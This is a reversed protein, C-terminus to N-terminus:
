LQQDAAVVRRELFQIGHQRPGILVLRLERGVGLRRTRFLATSCVNQPVQARLTEFRLVMQLTQPPPRARCRM